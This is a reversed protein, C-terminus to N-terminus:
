FGLAALERLIEEYLAVADFKLSWGVQAWHDAEIERLVKGWRQSAAPVLGDNAGGRASLYAHSPWLLPNTHALDTAGVVSCYAIRPDDPVERNFRAAARPTLDAFAAIPLLRSFPLNALPTGHHPAGITVLSAVRDGLGLRAIAFRADLGGMSHAIVNVRAGPLERVLAVLRGARVSVPAAPPVRPFHFEAGLPGLQEAINRFYRHRRGAVAIEDFGLVGHALVVPHRLRPARRAPVVRRLRARRMWARAALAAALVLLAALVVIWWRM